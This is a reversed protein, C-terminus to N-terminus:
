KAAERLAALPITATVEAGGFMRLLVDMRDGTRARLVRGILGTFPGAAVEVTMGVTPPRTRDFLGCREAVKLADIARDNVAMPVGNNRLLGLVGKAGLIAPWTDQDIDFRTFAYRPFYATEFRYPKRGPLRRIRKEFPCFVQFGLASISECARSEAAIATYVVHWREM